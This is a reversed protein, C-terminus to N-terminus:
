ATEATPTQELLRYHWLLLTGTMALLIAGFTQHVTTLAVQVNASSQGQAEFMIAILAAIGFMLQVGAIALLATALRPLPPVDVYLGWVRVAFVSILLLVIVALGVHLVVGGYIHRVMAGTVLQAILLVVAVWGVGQDWSVTPRAAPAVDSTWKRTLLSALIVLTAFYIQGFVGHIMALLISPALNARDTSLTFYGTVRLGGMIGQVVVMAVAVIALTRIAKRQEIRWLYVALVVTTLGVLSGLLRHSHEFYVGGPMDAIPYLFMNYGFSNPWDPVDLGAEYGTVMGGISILLTIAVATVLTFGVPWNVPRHRTLAAFPAASYRASPAM